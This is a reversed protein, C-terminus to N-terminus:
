ESQNNSSHSSHVVVQTGIFDEKAKAIIAPLFSMITHYTNDPAILVIVRFPYNEFNQQYSLNNDFTILTTFNNTVMLQLLEGNEKGFWREDKITSITFGHEQFRYKLKVPLNEDLLLKM